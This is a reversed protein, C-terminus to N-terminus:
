RVVQLKSTIQAGDITQLKLMYVGPSLNSIDVTNAGNLQTHKVVSGSLDLFLVESIMGGDSDIQVQNVAPNPYIQVSNSLETLDAVNSEANYANSISGVAINDVEGCTPLLARAELVAEHANVLGAGLKGAYNPNMEDVNVATVQLIELVEDPTLCPNVSLMLSIVGSVVPAAFSSGSSVGYIGNGGALAVDYGPACIDVSANHQHTSHPDGEVREHNYEPGLSTVCIVHNCAAPYVIHNPGGCTTGNGAAAVIVLGQNHVENIVLQAYNSPNCGSVWSLNVIDAGTYAAGLLQNYNMPRLQLRTNFGVSSKGVENDTAGSAMVAVATGHITNYHSSAVVMNTQSTLDEHDLDYNTDIVAIVVDDRGKTIDWAQRAQIIDLTYDQEFETNVDNPDYLAEYHPGIEPRTDLDTLDAVRQLLEHENCDCEIEYVALLEGNRSDPFAKEFRTVNLEDIIMQLEPHDTHLEGNLEQPIVNSNTFSAWVVGPEADQAYVVSHAVCITAIVLARHINRKM